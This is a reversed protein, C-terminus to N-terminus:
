PWIRKMDARVDIDGLPVIEDCMRGRVLLSYRQFTAQLLDIAGDIQPFSTRGLKRRDAETHAVVKNVLREVPRCAAELQAIDRKIRASTLHGARKNRTIGNFDRDAQPLAASDEYLSRFRRRTLATDNAALDELLIRLSVSKWGKKPREVMRRVATAAFALYNQVMWRSLEAGRWTGVHPATCEQFQRFIHRNTLLDRLQEQEIRDLWGNWKRFLARSM